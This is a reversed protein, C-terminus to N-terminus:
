FSFFNSFINIMKLVDLDTTRLKKLPAIGKVPDKSAEKHSFGM